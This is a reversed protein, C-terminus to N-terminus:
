GTMRVMIYLDLNKYNHLASKVIFCCSFCRTSVMLNANKIYLFSPRNIPCVLFHTRNLHGFFFQTLSPTLFLCSFHVLILNCTRLNKLRSITATTSISIKLWSIQLPFELWFIPTLEHSKHIRSLIINPTYNPRKSQGKLSLCGKIDGLDTNPGM